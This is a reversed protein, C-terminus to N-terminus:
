IAKAAKAMSYFQGKTSVLKDFSGKEKIGKDAIVIIEDYKKLNDKDLKHTVSIITKNLSLLESEIQKGTPADLASTFEDLILIDPNKILTRAISIRQKQGGSLNSGNEVLQTSDKDPLSEIFDYIGAEKKAKIYEEDSYSNFMMINDKISKSFLMTNQSVLGLSSYLSNDIDKVEKGDITLSGEYSSYFGLILKLLTTKGSGSEGVIAIKQGKSIGLNIDDLIKKDKVYSFSVDKFDIDKAFGKISLPKKPEEKEIIGMMKDRVGKSSKINTINSFISSIPNVIGNALQVAAILEGANILGLLVLYGSVLFGIMQSIIAICTGIAQATGYLKGRKYVVDETQGDIQNFEDSKVKAAGFSRIVEICSFSDKLHNTLYGMASSVADQRKDLPKGFFAPVILMMLSTVIITLAVWPSIIFLYITTGIFTLASQVFSLLPTLYSTDIINMDNTFMSIYDATPKKEFDEISEKMLAGFLDNKVEVFIKKKFAADLYYSGLDSLTIGIVSFACLIIAKYYTDLTGYIACNVVYQLTYAVEVSFFAAIAKVLSEIVLLWRHRKIYKKM